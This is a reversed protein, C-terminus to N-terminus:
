LLSPIKRQSVPRVYKCLTTDSKHGTVERIQHTPMGVMAAETCFGARLSHGAVNKAAEEGRVRRVASKVIHAVAAPALAKHLAVNDHSNVPRFIPGLMIGSLELWDKLAKTPCRSGRGHPIYVTRGVGEQDTKSRRLHLEIGGAFPTVDEVRLAVLESRRFAGAFGILLLARDRAAKMPKQQDVFILLELLDDKVIATVRRQKTGFTRRIGQMTRKVTANKVPSVLGLDIHARHIAVLRRRLTAVSLTGAYGALYEAVMAPPAPVTGGFGEFHRMDAEYASVTASSQAAAAYNMALSSSSHECLSTLGPLDGSGLDAENTKNSIKM